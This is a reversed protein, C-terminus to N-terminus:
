RQRDILLLLGERAEQFNSGLYHGHIYREWAAAGPAPEYNDRRYGVYYGRYIKGTESEENRPHYALFYEEDEASLANLEAVLAELKALVTAM